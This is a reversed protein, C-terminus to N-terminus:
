QPGPLEIPSGLFRVFSLGALDRALRGDATVFSAALAEALAVFVADYATSDYTRAIEVARQLIPSTPPVFELGLDFLSQLAQQVEETRLEGKYILLNAVEYLLLTPVCVRVRGDLYAERLALAQSALVEEQRFWKIVVSTDLVVSLTV